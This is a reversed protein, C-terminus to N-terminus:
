KSKFKAAEGNKYGNAVVDRRVVVIDCNLAFFQIFHMGLFIFEQKTNKKVEEVDDM